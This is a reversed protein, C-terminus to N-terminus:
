GALGCAQQAAQVAFLEAEALEKHRSGATDPFTITGNQLRLKYMAVTEAAPPIRLKAKADDALDQALARARILLPDALPKANAGDCAITGSDNVLMTLTKGQGTRTLLFLDPSQVNLGCGAIAATALVVLPLQRRV